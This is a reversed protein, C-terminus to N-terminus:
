HTRTYAREALSAFFRRADVGIDVTDLIASATRSYSQALDRCRDGLHHRDYVAKVTFSNRTTSTKPSYQPAAGRARASATILAVDKQPKIDGIERASFPQTASPTSGTTACSSHWALPTATTTCQRPRPKGIGTGNNRGPPLRPWFRRTKPRDHPFNYEDVTVNNRSEIGHRAAPRPLGGHRHHQLVRRPPASTAPARRSQQSAMTLMADGVTHGGAGVM